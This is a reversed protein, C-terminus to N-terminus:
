KSERKRSTSRWEWIFRWENARAKEMTSTADEKEVVLLIFCVWEALVKM